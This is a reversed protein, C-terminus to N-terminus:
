MGHYADTFPVRPPLLAVEDELKETRGLNQAGQVVDDLGVRRLIASAKNNRPGRSLMVLVYGDRPSSASEANM